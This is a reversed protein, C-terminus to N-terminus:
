EVDGGSYVLNIDFSYVDEGAQVTNIWVNTINEIQNLKAAFDAIESRTEAVGSIHMSGNGTNQIKFSVSDPITTEVKTLLNYFNIKSTDLESTKTERYSVEAQKKEILTKRAQVEALATIKNEVDVLEQESRRNFSYLTAYGAVLIALIVLILIVFRSRRKKGDEKLNIDQPLLNIDSM